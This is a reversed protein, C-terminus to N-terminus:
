PEELQRQQKLKLREGFLATGIRVCTSGEEIAVGFDGSMGMSLVPLRLGTDAEIEKQLDQFAQSSRFREYLKPNATKLQDLFSSNAVKPDIGVIVAVTLKTGDVLQRPKSLAQAGNLTRDIVSKTVAQFTENVEQTDGSTSGSLTEEFNKRLGEVKTEFTQAVKAQGDLLAKDLALDFRGGIDTGVGVAAIVGKPSLDKLVMQYLDGFPAESEKPPPPSSACAALLAALSLAALGGWVTRKM